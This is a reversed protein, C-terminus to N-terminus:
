PDLIRLAHLRVVPNGLEDTDNRAVMAGDLFTDLLQTFRRSALVEGRTLDIAELIADRYADRDTVRALRGDPEVGSRWDEGAVKILVWLTDGRQSLDVLLPVPPSDADAEPAWWAPFWQPERQMADVIEGTALWREIVYQNIRGVWISDGKSAGLERSDLVERLDARYAGDTLSGFSAVVEGNRNVLHLPYGIRDPTHIGANIVMQTGLFLGQGRALPGVAVSRVPRYDPSFVTMRGLAPDMVFLSDSPDVIIEGIMGFEGPGQGARGVRRLIEGSEDFVWFYPSGVAFVYYRGRSDVRVNNFAGELMGPGDPDGLTLVPELAIECGPCSPGGLEVIPVQAAGSLPLLVLWSLATLFRIM